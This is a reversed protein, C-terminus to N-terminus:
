WFIGLPHINNGQPMCSKLAYSKKSQTDVQSVSSEPKM